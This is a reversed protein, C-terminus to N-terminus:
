IRNIIDMKNSIFFTLEIININRLKSFEFKFERHFTKNRKKNFPMNKYILKLFIKQGNFVNNIRSITKLYIEKGRQQFISIM